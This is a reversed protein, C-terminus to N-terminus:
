TEDLLKLSGCGHQRDHCVCWGVCRWRPMAGRFQQSRSTSGALMTLVDAMMVQVKGAGSNGRARGKGNGGGVGTRVQTPLVAHASLLGRGTSAAAQLIYPHRVQLCGSAAPHCKFLRHMGRGYVTLQGSIQMCSRGWAAGATGCCSLVCAAHGTTGVCKSRWAWTWLWQKMARAIEGCAGTRGCRWV